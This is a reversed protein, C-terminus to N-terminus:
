SEEKGEWIIEVPRASTLRIKSGVKKLEEIIEEDPNKGTIITIKPKTKQIFKKSLENKRGHYPYKLIDVKGIEQLIEQMREERIDGTYLAKKRQYTITVMLSNNNADKYEINSPQIKMYLDKIQIELDKTVIENSIGKEEVEKNLETQLTSQKNYNTQLIMGISYNQIIYKANGIHDKDPHTLILYDIKAINKDQLKKQLVEQDRQEGTDIMIVTDEYSIISADADELSFFYFNVSPSNTNIQYYFIIIFALLIAMIIAISIKHM